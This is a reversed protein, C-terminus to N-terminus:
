SCGSTEGCTDCKACAGSRVLTLQQCNPCPDGEYGKQKAQRIKEAKSLAGGIMTTPAALEYGTDHAHTRQYLDKKRGTDHFHLSSWDHVVLTVAGRSEAVAARVREQAPEILAPLTVVPNTLFRYMALTAAFPHATGPLASLGSTVGTLM